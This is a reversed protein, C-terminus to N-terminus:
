YLLFRRLACFWAILPAGTSLEESEGKLLTGPAMLPKKLSRLGKLEPGFAARLGACTAGAAAVVAVVVVLVAAATVVALTLVTVGAVAGAVAGADGETQRVRTVVVDFLPCARRVDSRASSVDEAGACSAMEPKKLLM